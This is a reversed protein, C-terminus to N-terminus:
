GSVHLLGRCFANKDPDPLDNVWAMGLRQQGTCSSRIEALHQFM